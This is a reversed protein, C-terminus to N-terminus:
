IKGTQKQKELVEYTGITAAVASLVPAVLVGVLPIWSVLTYVAGNGIALGKNSSIFAISERVSLRRRENTYDIMSFGYFYCSIVFLFVPSVWGLVPIWSLVFFLVIFGFEILMNRFVIAIGRLVDNLFQGLDFNYKNGTIIEDVRESLLALIPSMIILVIYKQLWLVIFFMIIRIGLTLIFSLSGQLFSMWGEHHTNKGLGMLDLLYERVPETIASFTYFGTLIVAVSILFPYIFYIWLNHKAIFSIAKGYSNFGTGLNRFM